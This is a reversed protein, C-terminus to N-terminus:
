AGFAEINPVINPGIDSAIHTMQVLVGSAIAANPSTM